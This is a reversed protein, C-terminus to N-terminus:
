KARWQRTSVNSRRPLPRDSRGRSTRAYSRRVDTASASATSSAVPVSRATTADQHPPPSSRIRAASCRRAPPPDRGSRARSGASARDRRSRTGRNRRPGLQGRRLAPRPPVPLVHELSHGPKRSNKKVSVNVSGCEVFCISSARRSPARCRRRSSRGRGRSPDAAAAGHAPAPAPRGCGSGSAAGGRPRRRPRRAARAARRHGVRDRGRLQDRELAAAVRRLQAVRHDRVEQDTVERAGRRRRRRQRRRASAVWARARCRTASRARGRAGPRRSRRRAARAGGRGRSRSARAAGPSRPARPARRARAGPSRRARSRTAGCRLGLRGAVVQVAELRDAPHVLDQERVEHDEVVDDAVLRVVEPDAVLRPLEVVVQVLVRLELGGGVHPQRVEDAPQRHGVAALALRVQGRVVVGLHDLVDRAPRRDAVPRDEDALGVVDDRVGEAGPQRRDALPRLRVVVEGAVDGPEVGRRDSVAPAQPRSSPYACPSCTQTTM